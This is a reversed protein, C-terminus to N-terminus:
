KAKKNMTKLCQNCIRIRQKGPAERFLQLNPLFRRKTRRLSHSVNHGTMPKKGCKACVRAM